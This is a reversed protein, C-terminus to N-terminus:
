HDGKVGNCTRCLVQLNETVSKGGQNMPVIHDVQLYIRNRFQKGCCACTYKGGKMKAKAFAQERLTKEYEAGGPYKRMESLPMDEFRRKGYSVNKTEFTEPEVIRQLEIDVQRRFYSKMGFFLRLLNEDGQEWLENLYKTQELYNMGSEIIHRAIQAVDLKSYEIEDFTYFSPIESHQAYYMLIHRIDEPDYSPIMDGTFFSARCQEEMEDILEVPPYEDDNGYSDFLDPLAKMLRQYAKNTSDYVMVQWSLDMGEQEQYSMMYMGIPIRKDFPVREIATTDVSDDMIAAFEQIKKISIMRIARAEREAQKDTDEGGALLSEPNVWAIHENWNDVFSVIHATATGGAAEGRLARGIMQTMLITSVTPRTLFVTKTQPLDVGETLIMVNVLVKLKGEQYARIKRENDEQNINAGTLEDRIPSVVFDAPIGAKNFLKSLTIAQVVNVAFVLTQGYEDQNKQYTNVILKNRAASEAITKALEEPLTDFHQIKELDDLGLNQGYSEDTLCTTFIPKALIRRKILEKLDIKYAIGRHEPMGNLYLNGLQGAGEEGTRFPTATLGILKLHKVKKQLYEIVKRYTKATSHHAEDIVLYLEEEGKLWSNLAPLNRGISDKSAILINDKAKIDVARDHAVAGSVIRYTFSSTHPITTAYAYKQFSEAAQELLTHRHALWLIKKNRDIAHKLLWTSATYTKGGGTPLVVLTSYKEETDMVSLNEMAQKQHEYLQRPNTGKIPEVTGYAKNEAYGKM